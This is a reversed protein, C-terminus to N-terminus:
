KQSKAGFAFGATPTTTGPLAGPNLDPVCGGPCQLNNVLQQLPDTKFDALDNVNTTPSM